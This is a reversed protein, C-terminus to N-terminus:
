ELAQDVQDSPTVPHGACVALFAFKKYEKIVRQAYNLSWCNDRALRQSFTLNVGPSTSRFPECGTTSHGSNPRQQTSPSRGWVLDSPLVLCIQSM